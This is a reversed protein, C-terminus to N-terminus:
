KVKLANPIYPMDLQIYAIGNSRLYKTLFIVTILEENNEFKWLIKAKNDSLLDTNNKNFLLTGDPFKETHVVINNVKIM